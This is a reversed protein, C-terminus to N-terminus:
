LCVIESNQLTEPVIISRGDFNDNLNNQQRTAYDFSENARM